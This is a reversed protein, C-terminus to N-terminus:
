GTYSPWMKLKMQTDKIYLNSFSNVYIHIYIKFSVKQVQFECNSGNM